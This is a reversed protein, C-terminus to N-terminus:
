GEARARRRTAMLVVAAGLGMLAYTGPEPIVGISISGPGTIDLSWTGADGPQFGTTIFFYQSGATLVRTFGSLGITTNDDNGVLVNTLPSAANFSTQYLFSFNDWNVPATTESLLTYSGTTGVFLPTVSYNVGIGVGSLGVPPNGATPRTWTPGGATTGLVVIAEASFSAVAAAASLLRLAFHM